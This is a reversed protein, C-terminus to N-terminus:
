NIQKFPLKPLAFTEDPIAAPSVKTATLVSTVKDEVTIWKLYVSKTKEAVLNNGGYLNSKLHEPNLYLEPAYYIKHKKDGGTMELSQCKYGAITVKDATSIANYKEPELGCDIYYLTDIEPVKFYYRNASNDYMAWDVGAAQKYVQKYWEKRMYAKMSTGYLQRYAMADKESSKAVQQISYEVVGEFEAKQTKPQNCATTILFISLTYLYNVFQM